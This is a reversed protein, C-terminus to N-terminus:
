IMFYYRNVIIRLVLLWEFFDAPEEVGVEEFALDAPPENLAYISFCSNSLLFEPLWEFCNGFEEVGVEEFALCIQVRSM